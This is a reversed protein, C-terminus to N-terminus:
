AQRGRRLCCERAATGHAYVYVPGALRFSTLGCETCNWVGGHIAIRLAGMPVDSAHAVSAIAVRSRMGGDRLVGYMAALERRRSLPLSAAELMLEAVRADM